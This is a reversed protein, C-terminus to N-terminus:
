ARSLACGARTRRYVPAAWAGSLSVVGPAGSTLDALSVVGPLARGTFARSIVRAQMDLVSVKGAAAPFAAVDPVRHLRSKAVVL